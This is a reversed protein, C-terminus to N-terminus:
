EEVVMRVWRHERHDEKLILYHKDKKCVIIEGDIVATFTAREDYCVNAYPTDAIISGAVVSGVFLAVFLIIGFSMGVFVNSSM